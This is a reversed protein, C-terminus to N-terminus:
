DHRTPTAAWHLVSPSGNSGVHVIRQQTLQGFQAQVEYRGPPLKFMVLPGANRVAVVEGSDNLVRVQEAVAYEGGHNTFMIELPFEPALANMANREQTGVGGNLYQVGNAAQQVHLAPTDTVADVDAVPAQAMLTTAAALSLGFTFAAPLHSTM